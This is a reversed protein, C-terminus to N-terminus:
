YTLKTAFFIEAVRNYLRKIESSIILYPLGIVFLSNQTELINRESRKNRHTQLLMLFNYSKIEETIHYFLTISTTSKLISETYAM